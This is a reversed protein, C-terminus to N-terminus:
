PSKIKGTPRAHLLLDMAQMLRVACKSPQDETIGVVSGENIINQLAEKYTKPCESEGQVWATLRPGLNKMAEQDTCRSNIISKIQNKLDQRTGIDCLKASGTVPFLFILLTCSIKKKM